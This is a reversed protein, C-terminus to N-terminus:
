KARKSHEESRKRVWKMFSRVISTEDTSELDDLFRLVDEASLFPFAPSTKTVTYEGGKGRRHFKLTKGTYRWIELVGLQAYISMRSVSQSTVDVEIALDPPPDVEADYERKGRVQPEHQVYYSEDPQLGRDMLERRLTMSGVSQIPIDLELSIAEILRGLITKIWEHSKLPAMMELTGRDYSHRLPREGFAELVKTYEDWTVGHIVSYMELVGRDYAHRTRREALADSLKAYTDWSVDRLVVFPSDQATTNPTTATSM